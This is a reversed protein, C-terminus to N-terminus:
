PMPTLLGAGEIILSPTGAGGMVASVLSHIPKISALVNVDASASTIGTSLITTALFAAKVTRM